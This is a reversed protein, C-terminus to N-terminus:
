VIVDKVAAVWPEGHIPRTNDEIVGAAPSWNTDEFNALPEQDVGAASLVSYALFCVVCLSGIGLSAFRAIRKM